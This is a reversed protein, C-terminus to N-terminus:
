STILHEKKKKFNVEVEAGLAEAHKILNALTLNIEANEVRSVASQRTKLRKALESQSLKAEKRLKTLDLAIKEELRAKKFYEEFMPDSAIQESIYTNLSKM